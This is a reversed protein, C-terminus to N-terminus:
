YSRPRPETSDYYGYFASSRVRESWLHDLKFTGTVSKDVLRPASRDPPRGTPGSVTRWRASGTPRSSTAPSLAHAPVPRPQQPRPADVAPRLRHHRKALLRRQARARTPARVGSDDITNSKYGEVSAWFFTKNKVIPGGFSGGYLYFYTDPKDCSGTGAECAKRAFYSM